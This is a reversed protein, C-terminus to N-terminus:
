GQAFGSIYNSSRVVWGIVINCIRKVLTIWMRIPKCFLPYLYYLSTNIFLSCHKINHGLVNFVIRKYNWVNTCYTCTIKRTMVHDNVNGEGSTDASEVSNETFNQFILSCDRLILLHAENLCFFSSSFIMFLAVSHNM